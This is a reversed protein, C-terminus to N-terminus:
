DEDSHLEEYMDSLLRDGFFWRSKSEVGKGLFEPMLQQTVHQLSCEVGNYIVTRPGAITATTVGDKFTITDNVNLGIALYDIKPRRKQKDRVASELEEPPTLREAAAEVKATVDEGHHLLQLLAVVREADVRFFERSPSLRNPGFAFHFAKEVSRADPVNCAYVCDFPLPVGTHASLQAIRAGADSERTMGIKIIGPMAPNTLVYVTQLEIPQTLDM